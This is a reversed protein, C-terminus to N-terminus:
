RTLTVAQNDFQSGFEMALQDCDNAETIEKTGVDNPCEASGKHGVAYVGDWAVEQGYPVYTYGNTFVIVGIPFIVGTLGDPCLTITQNVVEFEWNARSRGTCDERM